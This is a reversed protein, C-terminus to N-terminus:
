SDARSVQTAPSSTEAVSKWIPVSTKTEGIVYECAAFGATRHDSGIMVLITPEGVPVFGTRHVCLVRRVEFKELTADLVRRLEKLAMDPHVEYDLGAIAEGGEMQRVWGTFTVVSGCETYRVLPLYEDPDIARGAPLIEAHTFREYVTV